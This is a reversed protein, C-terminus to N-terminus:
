GDGVAISWLQAGSAFYFRGNLLVGGATIPAPLDAIKQASFDDQIQLLNKGLAAYVNGDAGRWLPSGPNFPAGWNKWDARHIVTKSQPDFVFFQADSTLGFVKGDNRIELGYIANAGAVPATRFTIEKTAADMLFLESEKAVVHGGGPAEISTTGIITKEDLLRLAVISHGPLLKEPSIVSATKAAGDYVVLGGGTVGYAGYGGFIADGNPLTLAARPRTVEKFKGLLRPNITQGGPAIQWPQSTDFEYTSGSSYSAGVVYKGSIAFAPFNGGGIEKIPGYDRLTSGAQPAAADLAFFHMPHNTSGYVKGDPGAVLSSIAAGSSEYDFTIRQAEGNLEVVAFKEPLSFEVIKGAGPFDNLASQWSIAGTIAKPPFPKESVPAAAGNELKLLPSESSAFERGYVHGDSSLMVWGNGTKRKSEDALQVRERTQTNFAVLNSRATGIGAYVWGENGAALFFPYKEAPDLQGLKELERKQADFRFLSSNPYTGFFVDGKENQAFSMANGDTEGRFTWDRKELDFELFANGFTTYIKGNKARLLHFVEGNGSQSDPYWIQQTKGTQADIVLLSNRTGADLRDRAIAVIFPTGSADRVALVGRSESVPAAVGHNIAQAMKAEAPLVGPAAHAANLCLLVSLATVGIEVLLNKV